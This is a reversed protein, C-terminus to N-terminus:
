NGRDGAAKNICAALQFDRESVGQSDHTTLAVDVRSYVNHLEPHHNFKEAALAIQTMFGFAESFNAFKFNRTIALGDARMVWGGGLKQLEQEIAATELRDYKM